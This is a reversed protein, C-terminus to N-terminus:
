YKMGLTFNPLDFETCKMGYIIPESKGSPRVVGKSALDYAEQSYIDVGSYRFLQYIM